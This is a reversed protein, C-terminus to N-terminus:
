PTPIEPPFRLFSSMTFCRLLCEGGEMDGNLSNWTLAAFFPRLM